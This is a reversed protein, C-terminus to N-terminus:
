FWGTYLLCPDEKCQALLLSAPFVGSWPSLDWGTPALELDGQTPVRCIIELDGSSEGRSRPIVPSHFVVDTGFQSPGTVALAFVCSGQRVLLKCEKQDISTYSPKLCVLCGWLGWLLCWKWASYCAWSRLIVTYWSSPCV